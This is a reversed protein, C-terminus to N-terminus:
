LCYLFWMSIRYWISNVINNESSNKNERFISNKHKVSIKNESGTNYLCAFYLFFVFKWQSKNKASFLACRFSIGLWFTIERYAYCLSHFIYTNALLQFYLIGCSLNYLVYDFIHTYGGEGRFFYINTKFTNSTCHVPQLSNYLFLFGFM